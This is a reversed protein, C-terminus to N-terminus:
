VLQEDPSGEQKVVRHDGVGDAQHLGRGDLVFQEDDPGAEEEEEEAAGVGHRREAEIVAALLRPGHHVLGEM